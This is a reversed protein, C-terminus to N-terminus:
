LSCLVWLAFLSLIGLGMIMFFGSGLLEFFVEVLWCVVIIGILISFM